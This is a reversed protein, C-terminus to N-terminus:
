QINSEINKFHVVVRKSKCDETKPIEENKIFEQVIEM